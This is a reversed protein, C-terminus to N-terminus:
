VSSVHISTGTCSSMFASVHDAPWTTSARSLLPCNCQCANCSYPFRVLPYLDASSHLPVSNEKAPMDDTILLPGTERGSIWVASSSAPSCAFSYAVCGNTLRLFLQTRVSLIRLHFDKQWFMKVVYARALDTYRPTMRVQAQAQQAQQLLMMHQEAAGMNGAQQM